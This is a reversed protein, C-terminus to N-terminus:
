FIVEKLKFVPGDKCIKKAQNDFTKIACGNCVGYGCGMRAELSIFGDDYNKNIDQLMLLPGCAYIIKDKTNEKKLLDCPTLNNKFYAIKSNKFELKPQEKESNFGLLFTYKIKKKELESALFSLPAFGVGGSVLIAEKNKIIPFSTGLPGLINLKTGRKLNVLNKTGEGIVKYIISFSKNTYEYIGFPRRLYFNPILIEIFQGPQVKCNFQGEFQLLYTDKAIKKNRLIKFEKVEM